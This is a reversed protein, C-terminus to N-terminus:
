KSSKFKKHQFSETKMWQISIDISQLIAKPLSTNHGLTSFLTYEFPKGQVKFTNLQEICQVNPIYITALGQILTYEFLKKISWNSYVSVQWFWKSINVLKKRTIKWFNNNGNLTACNNWPQLTPCSFLVMFEIQPNKAAITNRM